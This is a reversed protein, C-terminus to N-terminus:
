EHDFEVINFVPYGAEELRKRGPLFTLDIVFACEEVKAGGQEILRATALATGGTALLDDLLLVKKLGEVADENMHLEDTGYELEYQVSRTKYPLKGPKRVPIFGVGLRDALAGGFIFGRAEVAVVSDIGRDKYRNELITLVEGFAEAHSILTTIDYFLIGPKPFDAVKRIARDLDYEASM